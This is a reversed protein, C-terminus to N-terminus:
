QRHFYSADQVVRGERELNWALKRLKPPTITKYDVTVDFVGSVIFAKTILRSCIWAEDEIPTTCCFKFDFFYIGSKDFPKGLEKECFTFMDNYERETLFVRVGEWKKSDTYDNGGEIM